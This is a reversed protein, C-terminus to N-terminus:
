ATSKKIRFPAILVKPPSSMAVGLYAQLSECIAFSLSNTARCSIMGHNAFRKIV